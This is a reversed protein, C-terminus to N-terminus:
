NLAEAMKAISDALQDLFKAAIRAHNAEYDAAAAIYSRLEQAVPGPDAAAADCATQAAKMVNHAWDDEFASLKLLADAIRCFVEKAEPPLPKTFLIGPRDDKMHYLTM